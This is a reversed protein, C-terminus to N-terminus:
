SVRPIKQRINREVVVDDGEGIPDADVNNISLLVGRM